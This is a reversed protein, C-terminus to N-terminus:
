CGPVAASWRPGGQAGPDGSTDDQEVGLREGAHDAEGEVVDDVVAVLQEQAEAFWRGGDGRGEGVQQADASSSCQGPRGRAM